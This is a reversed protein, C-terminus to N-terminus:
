KSDEKKVGIVTCHQDRPLNKECEAIANRALENYSGPVLIVLVAAIAWGALIGTLFQEM